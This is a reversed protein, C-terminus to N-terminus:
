YEPVYIEGEELDPDTIVLESEEFVGADIILESEELVGAAIVLESEEFESDSIVLEGSWVNELPTRCMPCPPDVYHKHTWNTFCRSHFIHGCKTKVISQKTVSDYCIPCDDCSTNNKGRIFITRAVISPKTTCMGIGYCKCDGCARTWLIGNVVSGNAEIENEFIEEPSLHDTWRPDMGCSSRRIMRRLIKPSPIIEHQRSM